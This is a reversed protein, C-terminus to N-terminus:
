FNQLILKAFVVDFVYNAESSLRFNVFLWM